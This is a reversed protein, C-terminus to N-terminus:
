SIAPPRALQARRGASTGTGAGPMGMRFPGDAQRHTPHGCSYWALGRWEPPAQDRRGGALWEGGRHDALSLLDPIRRPSHLRLQRRPRAASEACAIQRASLVGECYLPHLDQRGIQPRRVAMQPSAVIRRYNADSFGACPGSVIPELRVESAARAANLRGVVLEGVDRAVEGRAGAAIRCGLGRREPQGDTTHRTASGIRGRAPAGRGGAATRRGM